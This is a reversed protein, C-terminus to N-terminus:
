TKRLKKQTQADSAKPKKPKGLNKKPKPEFLTCKIFLQQPKADLLKFKSILTQTKVWFAWM